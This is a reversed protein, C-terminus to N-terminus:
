RRRLAGRDPVVGAAPPARGAVAGVDLGRGRVSRPLAWESEVFRVKRESCFVRHSDDLRTSSGMAAGTLRALTPQSSPFRRGTRQVLELARNNLLEDTLWTRWAPPPAAPEDTRDSTMVLARGSWPM